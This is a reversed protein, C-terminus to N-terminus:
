KQKKKERERERDRGQGGCHYDMLINHVREEVTQGLDKGDTVFIKRRPYIRPRVTVYLSHYFKSCVSTLNNYKVQKQM